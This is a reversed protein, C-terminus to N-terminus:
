PNGLSDAVLPACRVDGRDRVGIGADPDIVDGVAVTPANDPAGADRCRHPGGDDIGCAPKRRRALDLKRRDVAVEPLRGIEGVNSM